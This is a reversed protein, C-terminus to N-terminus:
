PQSQTTDASYRFTLTVDAFQSKPQPFAWQKIETLVCSGIPTDRLTSELLRVRTVAGQGTVRFTVQLEGDTPSPTCRALNAQHHRVIRRVIDRDLAGDVVIEPSRVEAVERAKPTQAAEAPETPAPTATSTPASTPASCAVSSCLTMTLIARRM